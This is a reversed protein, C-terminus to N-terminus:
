IKVKLITEIAATLGGAAAFGRGYISADDVSSDECKEPDM